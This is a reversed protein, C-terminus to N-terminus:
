GEGELTQEVAAILKRLSINNSPNDRGQSAIFVEAAHVADMLRQNKVILGKEKATQATAVQSLELFLKNITELEM